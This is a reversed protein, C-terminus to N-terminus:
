GGGPTFGNIMDRAAPGARSSSVAPDGFDDAGLGGALTDVGEGGILRDAKGNGDFQVNGGCGYAASASIAAAGGAVIAVIRAL